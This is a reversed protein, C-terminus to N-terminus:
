GAVDAINFDLPLAPRGTHEGRAQDMLRKALRADDGGLPEIARIRARPIVETLREGYDDWKYETAVGGCDIAIIAYHIEEPEGLLERAISHLGNAEITKPLTAGIKAEKV